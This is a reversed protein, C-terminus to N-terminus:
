CALISGVLISMTSVLGIGAVDFDGNRSCSNEIKRNGDTKTNSGKNNSIHNNTTMMVLVLHPTM